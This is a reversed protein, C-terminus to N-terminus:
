FYTKVLVLELIGIFENKFILETIENEPILLTKQTKTLSKSKQINSMQSSTELIKKEVLKVATLM